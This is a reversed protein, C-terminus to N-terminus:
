NFIEYSCNKILINIIKKEKKQFFDETISAGLQPTPRKRFTGQFAQQFLSFEIKESESRLILLFYHLDHM